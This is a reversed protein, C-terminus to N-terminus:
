LGELLNNLEAKNEEEDQLHRNSSENDKIKDELATSDEKTRMSKSNELYSKLDEKTTSGTTWLSKTPTFILNISEEKLGNRNKLIDLRINRDVSNGGSDLKNLGILIDSSYEIAGSEKFSKMDVKDTEYSARNLSSIVIIPTHYVRSIDKLRKVITDIKQKDSLRPNLTNDSNTLLQLYDIVIIPTAKTEEEHAKLDEEINNLCFDNLCEDIYIHNSYTKYSEIATNFLEQTSEEKITYYMIQTNNLVKAGTDRNLNLYMNRSLSRSIIEKISMELSYYFIDKRNIQAIQDCLQIVFSSKGLSSEAGITILGERLGGNFIKDLEKFGTKIPKNFKLRDDVFSNLYYESSKIKM